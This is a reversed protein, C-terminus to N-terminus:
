MLEEYSKAAYPRVPSSVELPRVDQLVTGDPLERILLTAIVNGCDDRIPRSYTLTM